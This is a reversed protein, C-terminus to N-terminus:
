RAICCMIILEDLMQGDIQRAPLWVKEGGVM